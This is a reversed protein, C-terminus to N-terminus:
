SVYVSVSHSSFKSLHKRILSDMKHCLSENTSVGDLKAKVETKIMDLVKM